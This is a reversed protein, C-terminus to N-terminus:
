DTSWYVFRLYGKTGNGGNGNNGGGGAGGGAGYGTANTGAQSTGSANGGGNGGNGFLSAAGAGGGGCSRTGTTGGIGGSPTVGMAATLWGSNMSAGNNGAVSATANANGGASGGGLVLHGFLTYVPSGSFGSASGHVTYIQGGLGGTRGNAGSASPNGGGGILSFTNSAVNGFPTLVPSITTNGGPVSAAYSNFLGGTGGSGIAITLQTEPLVDVPWSIVGMGAGGGGGGGSTTANDWNGATGGGGGGCGTVFLRTVGAPVTWSFPTATDATNLIGDTKIGVGDIFEVVHQRLVAGGLSM